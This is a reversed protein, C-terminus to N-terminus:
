KEPVDLKQCILVNGTTAKIIVLSGVKIHQPNDFQANMITGSWKVQGFNNPYLPLSYVEATSGIIDFRDVTKKTSITYKKLPWWLIAFCLFSSFGFTTYQHQYFLFYNYVLISNLLGGLGLFLLGIGPLMSFESAVALIGFVLWIIAALSSGAISEM